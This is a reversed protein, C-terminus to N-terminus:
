PMWPVRGIARVHLTNDQSLGPFSMLPAGSAYVDVEVWQMPTREGACLSRDRVHSGGPVCSWYRQAEARAGRLDPISEMSVQEAGRLDNQGAPTTGYALAAAAADRVRLQHGLLLGYDVAGVLIAVLVPLVLAVEVLVSGDQERLLRM